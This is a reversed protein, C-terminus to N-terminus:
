STFELRLPREERMLTMLEDFPIEASLPRGQASVLEMGPVVGWQLDAVTGSEVVAIIVRSGRLGLTIGLRSTNEDATCIVPGSVPAPARLSSVDAATEEQRDIAAEAVAAEVRAKTEEAVNSIKRGLRGFRSGLKRAQASMETQLEGLQVKLEPEPEPQRPENIGDGVLSARYASWSKQSVKAKCISKQLPAAPETGPYKGHLLKMCDGLDGALCRPQLYRLLGLGAKILFMDGVSSLVFRDWLWQAM